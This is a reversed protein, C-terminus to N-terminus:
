TVAIGKGGTKQDASGGALVVRPLLAGPHEYVEIVGESAERGTRKAARAAGKERLIDAAKDFDGDSAELAKKADLIGAGTATRLEKVMAASIKM